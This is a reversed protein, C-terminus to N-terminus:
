EPLPQFEIKEPVQEVQLTMFRLIDENLRYERWLKDMIETPISFYLVYYHGERKKNIPYALKKRGQDFIKVVEGGKDGISTTVKDLLKQRADDTLGTNFIYMGEYLHNRKKTM